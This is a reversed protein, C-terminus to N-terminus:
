HAYVVHLIAEARNRVDLKEYIHRLHVKVTVESIFLKRAIDKNSLGDAVLQLVQRERKSLSDTPAHTSERSPVVIGFRQALQYDRASLLVSRIENEIQPESAALLLLEPCARYAWVLQNWHQYKKAFAIAELLSNIATSPDSHLATIVRVFATLARAETSRTTADARSAYELAMDVDGSCAAKLAEVSYSLGQWIRASGSDPHSIERSPKTTRLLLVIERLARILTPISGSDIGSTSQASDLLLEAHRYRRLGIASSARVCYIAPLALHLGYDVLLRYTDDLIREAEAYQALQVLHDCYLGTFSARIQPHVRNLLPEVQEFRMPEVTEPQLLHSLLLRGEATRVTVDPRGGNFRELEQLVSACETSELEYACLFELWLCHQVDSIQSALKRAKRAHVIGAELLDSFHASRSAVAYARWCFRSSETFHLTAQISLAYAKPHNGILFATEAEALDLLPDVIGHARGYEIRSTLAPVRSGDLLTPLSCEILRPLLDPREFDQILQWVDDWRSGALLAEALEDILQTRDPRERLRQELFARLLPHLSPEGTEGISPFFGERKAETALDLAEAGGIRELLDRTVRPAASIQCLFRQLDPSVNHFMEEAFYDYLGPLFAENPVAAGTSRAALGLVAPWGHCLEVLQRRQDESKVPALVKAAEEPTMELEERGIEFMEGYLRLRSRAWHPRNRSAVLLRVPAERVLTGFFRECAPSVALAQYDDVVLRADAPWSGIARALIEALLVADAEPDSSVSLRTLMREDAGPILKSVAEAVRASVAAVDFGEPGVTYWAHVIKRGNVWQRALTSKGCGAPAILAIIRTNAADLKELLRPREILSPESGRRQNV